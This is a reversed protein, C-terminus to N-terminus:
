SRCAELTPYDSCNRGIEIDKNLILHQLMLRADLIPLNQCCFIYEFYEKTIPKDIDSLIKDTFIWLFVAPSM